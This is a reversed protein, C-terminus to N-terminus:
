KKIKDSDDVINDFTKEFTEECITLTDKVHKMATRYGDIYSIRLQKTLNERLHDLEQELM